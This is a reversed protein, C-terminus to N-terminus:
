LKLRRTVSCLLESIIYSITAAWSTFYGGAICSVQTRDRPQSSGRSFPFGVWELIRAQLIGHVTYGMSDSEVSCSESESENHLCDSDIKLQECSCANDKLKIILRSALGLKEQWLLKVDSNSLLNDSLSRELCVLVFSMKGEWRGSGHGFGGEGLGHWGWSFM